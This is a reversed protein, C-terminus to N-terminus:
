FSVVGQKFIRLLQVLFIKKSHVILPSALKKRFNTKVKKGESEKRCKPLFITTLSKGYKRYQSFDRRWIQSCFLLKSEISQTDHYLYMIHNQLNFFEQTQINNFSVVLYKLRVFIKKQGVIRIIKGM